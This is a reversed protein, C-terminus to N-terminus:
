KLSFSTYQVIGAPRSTCRTMSMCILVHIYMYRYLMHIEIFSGLRVRLVRIEGTRDDM